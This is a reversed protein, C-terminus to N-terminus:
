LIDACEQTTSIEVAMEDMIIKMDNLQEGEEGM